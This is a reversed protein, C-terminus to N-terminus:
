RDAQVLGLALLVGWPLFQGDAAGARGGFGAHYRNGIFYKFGDIGVMVALFILSCVIVFYNMTRAYTRRADSNKAQEFFFPEAALRFAQIFLTMVLSLKYCASYIGIQVMRGSFPLPLWKELLIRDMTENVMGAFGVLVMPLAYRLMRRLIPGDVRFGHGLIERHLFLLTALSAILNAIFVYGIGIAPDYVLRLIRRAAGPQLHRLLLPCLFLFFLNLGINILINAMRVFAFKAAKQQQRLRAFPIAGLADAGLILAFWVVYEPHAPIKLASSPTRGSPHGSGFVRGFRGSARDHRHRLGQAAGAGQQFLPLIGNGDRLHLPHGCFERLRVDAVRSRLRRTGWGKVRSKRLAHLATASACMLTAGAEFPIEDPLPIANRAPVAIYEAYGGDVHHGIM